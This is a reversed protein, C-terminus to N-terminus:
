CKVFEACVKCHVSILQESNRAKVKRYQDEDVDDDDLAYTETKWSFVKRIKQSISPMSTINVSTISISTPRRLCIIQAYVLTYHLLKQEVYDSKIM